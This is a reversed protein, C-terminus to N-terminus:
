WSAGVLVGKVLVLSDKLERVLQSDPMTDHFNMTITVDLMQLLTTIFTVASQGPQAVSRTSSSSGSQLPLTTTLLWTSAPDGKM